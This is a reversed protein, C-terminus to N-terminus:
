HSQRHKQHGNLYLTKLKRHDIKGNESLPFTDTRIIKQPVMYSPLRSSVYKLIASDDQQVSNLLFLVLSDVSGNKNLIPLTCATLSKRAFLGIVPGTKLPIQHELVAIFQRLEAYTYSSGSVHLAERQPFQEASKEFYYFADDTSM